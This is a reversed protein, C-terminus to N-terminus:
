VNLVMGDYAVEIGHPAFWQCLAEYNAGGNHSFHNAVV